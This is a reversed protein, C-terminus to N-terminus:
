DLYIFENTNMLARCLEAFPSSQLFANAREREKATPLRSLSLQYARDIRVAEPEKALREALANLRSGRQRELCSPHVLLAQRESSALSQWQRALEANDRPHRWM